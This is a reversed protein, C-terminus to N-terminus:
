REERIIYAELIDGEVFSEFGELAIGCEYGQAVEKVDDKFRKLSAIRIKEGLVEGKRLVRVFAGRDVKGELVYCGAVIGVRPIKFLARVEARGIVEEVKRPEFLGQIARKMDEVVDYIIRYLRVEVGEQKAVKAVDNPLKVNFGIVVGASASALMVDAESINGVGRFVVNIKVNENGLQSIARELAELSGQYDAKLVLHLEKIKGEEPALLEELSVVRNGSERLIREREKEKRREAIITAVKEEEVVVLKTGAPPLESFGVVEVPTAPTAEKLTKGLDDFLSRVRGWTTGAVFFDGVRLTGEQVIVTAVPGKGRDLRSEIIVGIAPGSYRARLELLDAQLLIMDLLDQIGKRQLASIPVCITDGGWEEPILGCETLQQKVRDPNAGPKDIKNIAVVIPVDAAKAHQIAEVTQPMVGDDAAVVLVAIDTVQAGRARMTTFAEHGPTDIFTIKRSGVDVQYAGIKQTIGGFESEAIRSRRIADLLTTKGHDVHGLITVVPPRPLKEVELTKLVEERINEKWEVEFGKERILREVVLPPLPKKSHPIVNLDALRLLVDTEEEGLIRALERLTPLNELLITQERKKRIEEEKRRRYELEEELLEILDEDISSMHNKVDAGLERLMDMVEHTPMGLREAVKYVRVKTM